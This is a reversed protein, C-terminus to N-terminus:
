GADDTGMVGAARGPHPQNDPVAKIEGVARRNEDIWGAREAAPEVVAAPDLRHPRRRLDAGEQMLRLIAVHVHREEDAWPSALALAVDQPELPGGIVTLDDPEFLAFALPAALPLVRACDDDDRHSFREFGREVGRPRRPKGGLHRRELELILCDAEVGLALWPPPPTVAEM